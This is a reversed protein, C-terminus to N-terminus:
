EKKQSDLPVPSLTLVEDQAVTSVPSVPKDIRRRKDDHHSEAEQPAAGPTANVPSSMSQELSIPRTEGRRAKPDVDMQGEGGPGTATNDRPAFPSDVPTRM